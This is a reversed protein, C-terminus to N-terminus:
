ELTMSKVAADFLPEDTAAESALCTATVVLKNGGGGEFYYFVQEVRANNLQPVTDNVVVRTGDLGAITKFINQDVIVLDKIQPLKKLNALSGAIYDNM